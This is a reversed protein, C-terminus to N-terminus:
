AQGDQRANEKKIEELDMLVTSFLKQELLEDDIGKVRALNLLVASWSSKDSGSGGEFINPNADVIKNRCSVYFLEVAKLYEIGCRMFLKTRAKINNTNFREREDGTTDAALPDFDTNAFRYLTAVLMRLYEINKTTTYAEYFQECAVFEGFCINDLGDVPGVFTNEGVKLEPFLNKTLEIKADEDFIFNLAGMLQGRVEDDSILIADYLLKKNKDRLAEPTLGLIAFLTLCKAKGLDINYKISAKWHDISKAIYLVADASLENWSEPMEFDLVKTSSKKEDGNKINQIVELNITNM